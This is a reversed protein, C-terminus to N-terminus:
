PQFLNRGRVANWPMRLVTLAVVPLLILILALGYGLRKM